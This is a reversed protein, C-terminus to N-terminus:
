HRWPSVRTGTSRPPVAPIQASLMLYTLGHVLADLRNPSKRSTPDWSVMEDELMALHDPRASEVVHHVRGQEYLASVPDARTRKDRSAHIGVWRVRGHPDITRIVHEVVDPRGPSGNDEYVVLDARFEDYTAVVRQGWENPSANVSRDARVYGHGDEGLAVVVIGCADYSGDSAHSPDVAVVLRVVPPCPTVRLQDLQDLKWLAGATDELIEAEIEQRGLRTGAYLELSRLFDPALNAANRRTSWRTMVVDSRPVRIGDPGKAGALSKILETPRPTTTVVVQPHQGLRLGMMLNDWAESRRWAGVEDAWAFHHQPGRLLDPEDASYTWARSGNPWRIVRNSQQYRPAFFPPCVAELGSDGKVM